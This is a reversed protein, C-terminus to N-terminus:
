AEAEDATDDAPTRRIRILRDEQTLTLVVHDVFELLINRALENDVAIVQLAGRYQETVRNLLRYVDRVRALDFGEHGSNASLGDLILLGPLPLSRDIAM